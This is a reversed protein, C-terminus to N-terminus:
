SVRTLQSGRQKAEEEGQAVTVERPRYGDGAPQWTRDRPTQRWTCKM